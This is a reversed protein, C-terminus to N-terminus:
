IIHKTDRSSRELVDSFSLRIIDYYSRLNPKSWLHIVCLSKNYISHPTDYVHAPFIYHFISSLWSIWEVNNTLGSYMIKYKVKIDVNTLKLTRKISASQWRHMNESSIKFQNLIRRSVKQLDVPVFLHVRRLKSAFIELVSHWIEKITISHWM